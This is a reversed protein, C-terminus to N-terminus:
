AHNLHHMRGHADRVLLEQYPEPVIITPTRSPPALIWLEDRLAADEVTAAFDGFADDM